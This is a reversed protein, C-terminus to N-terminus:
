LAKIYPKLYYSDDIDVDFTNYMRVDMLKFETDFNYTTGFLTEVGSSKFALVINKHEVYVYEYHIGIAEIGIWRYRLGSFTYKPDYNSKYSILPAVGDISTIGYTYRVGSVTRAWEIGDSSLHIYSPYLITAFVEIDNSWTVSEAELGRPGNVWTVGGDDSYAIGSGGFPPNEGVIVFRGLTPSWAVDQWNVGASPPTQATWNVGDSSTAIKDNGVAIYTGIDDAWEIRVCNQAEAPLAGSSWTIGDSSRYYSTAGMYYFESRSPSWVMNTDPNGVTNGTTWNVGDDSYCNKDLDTIYVVRSLSPSYAATGTGNPVPAGEHLTQVLEYYTGVENYLDPYNAKQYVSGDLELFNPGPDFGYPFYQVDGVRYTPFSDILNQTNLSDLDSATLSM